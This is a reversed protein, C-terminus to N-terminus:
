AKLLAAARPVTGKEIHRDEPVSIKAEALVRDEVGNRPHPPGDQNGVWMGRTCCSNYNM